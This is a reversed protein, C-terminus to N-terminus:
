VIDIFQLLKCLDNIQINALKCDVLKDNLESLKTLEMMILDDNNTDDTNKYFKLSKEAEAMRNKFLLYQPTEPFFPFLLLFVVALILGFIPGITYSFYHGVIYEILIGLNSFM